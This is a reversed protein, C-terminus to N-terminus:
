AFLQVEKRRLAHRIRSVSRAMWKLPHLFSTRVFVSQLVYAGSGGGTPFVFPAAHKACGVARDATKLGVAIRSHNEVGHCVRFMKPWSINFTCVLPHLAFSFARVLTPRRPHMRGGRRLAFDVRHSTHRTSNDCLINHQWSRFQPKCTIRLRASVSGDHIAHAEGRKAM